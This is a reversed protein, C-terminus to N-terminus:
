NNVTCLDTGSIAAEAEYVLIKTAGFVVLGVGNAGRHIAQKETSFALSEAATLQAPTATADNLLKSWNDFAFRKKKKLTAFVDNAEQSNQSATGDHRYAYRTSGRARGRNSSRAWWSPCCPLFRLFLHKGGFGDSIKM